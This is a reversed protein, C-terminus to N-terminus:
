FNYREITKHNQHFTHQWCLWVDPVDVNSYSFFFRDLSVCFISRDVFHVKWRFPFIWKKAQGWFVPLSLSLIFWHKKKNKNSCFYFFFSKGESLELDLEALKERIDESLSSLDVLLDSM